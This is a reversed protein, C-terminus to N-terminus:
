NLRVPEERVAVTILREIRQFVKLIRLESGFRMAQDCTVGRISMLTDLPVVVLVSNWDDEVHSPRLVLISGGPRLAGEKGYVITMSSTHTGVVQLVM